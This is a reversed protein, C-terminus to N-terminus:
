STALAKAGEKAAEVITEQMSECLPTSFPPDICEAHWRGARYVVQIEVPVRTALDDTEDVIQLKMGVRFEM